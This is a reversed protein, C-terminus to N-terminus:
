KMTLTLENQGEPMEDATFANINCLCYVYQGQTVEFSGDGELVSDYAQPLFRAADDFPEDLVYFSWVVEEADCGVDAPSFGETTVSTAQYTGSQPAQFSYAISDYVESADVTVTTIDAQDEQGAEFGIILTSIGSAAQEETASSYSCVCYVYKGSALEISGDGTLAPVEGEKIEEMEGDFLYISWAVDEYGEANSATFTYTGTGDAVFFCPQECADSADLVLYAEQDDMEPGADLDETSEESDTGDADTEGGDAGETVDEGSDADVIVTEEDESTETNVVNDGTGGGCATLSLSLAACLLLVIYKKM